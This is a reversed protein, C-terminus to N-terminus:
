LSRNTLQTSVISAIRPIEAEAIGAEVCAQHCAAGHSMLDTLQNARKAIAEIDVEDPAPIHVPLEPLAKALYSTYPTDTITWDNGYDDAITVKQLEVLIDEITGCNLVQDCRSRVVRNGSNQHWFRSELYARLEGSRYHRVVFYDRRHAGSNGIGDGGGADVKAEVAIWYAGDKTIKAAPGKRAKRSIALQGLTLGNIQDNM